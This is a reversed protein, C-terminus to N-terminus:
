GKAMNLKRFCTDARWDPQRYVCGETAGSPRRLRRGAFTQWEVNYGLKSIEDAITQILQGGSISLLGTVNEMVLWKPSLSGFWGSINGFCGLARIMNAAGM